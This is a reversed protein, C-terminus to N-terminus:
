HLNERRSSPMENWDLGLERAIYSAARPDLPAKPGAKWLTMRRSGRRVTVYARASKEARNRGGEFICGRETLWRRFTGSYM